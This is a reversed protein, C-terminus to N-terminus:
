QAKKRLLFVYTPIVPLVLRLIWDWRRRVITRTLWSDGREISLTERLALLTVDRGRLTRTDAILRRLGLMGLPTCDYHTGRRAIRVYLDALRKPLWSLGPLRFHAEYLSWRNPVAFYVLGHDSLVRSIECLHNLQADRDGVHEIVHNTIVVDFFGDPFPLETGRVQVFQFGGTVTLSDQVDVAYVDMSGGFRRAFHDAIRGSGTGVELLRKSDSLLKSGVLREIKTAKAQRSDADSVVHAQRASQNARRTTM